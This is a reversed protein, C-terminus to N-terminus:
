GLSGKSSWDGNSSLENLYFDALNYISEFDIFITISSGQSPSRATIRWTTWSRPGQGQVEKM